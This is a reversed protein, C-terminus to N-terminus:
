STKEASLAQSTKYEVQKPIMWSLRKISSNPSNITYFLEFHFPIRDLSKWYLNINCFSATLRTLKYYKLTWLFNSFHGNFSENVQYVRYIEELQDYNIHGSGSKDRDEFIEELKANRRAEKRQRIIRFAM